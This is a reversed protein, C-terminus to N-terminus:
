RWPKLNVIALPTGLEKKMLVAMAKNKAVLPLWANAEPWKELAVAYAESDNLQLLESLPRSKMIVEPTVQEMPVYLDPRQALDAGGTTSELILQNRKERDSPILSAVWRPGGWPISRFEPSAIKLFRGELENAQGVDFRDVSFVIWAPRSIAIAHFGYSFAGMQLVLICALDLKLSKKNPRFVIFTLLPGIVVDIAILLLFIKGVGVAEALPSPYWILYVVAMASAALFASLAVHIGFALIRNRM